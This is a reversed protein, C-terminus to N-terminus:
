LLGYRMSLKLRSSFPFRIHGFPMFNTYLYSLCIRPFLYPCGSCDECEYLKEGWLLVPSINGKYGYVSVKVQNIGTAEEEVSLKLQINNTAGESTPKDVSETVFTAKTVLPATTDSGSEAWESGVTCLCMVM